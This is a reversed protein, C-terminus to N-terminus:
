ERDFGDDRSHNNRATKVTEPKKDPEKPVSDKSEAQKKEGVEKQQAIEEIKADYFYNNDILSIENDAVPKTLVLSYEAEEKSDVFNIEQAEGLMKLYEMVSFGPAPRMEPAAYIDDYYYEDRAMDELELRVTRDLLNVFAVKITVSDNTIDKTFFCNAPDYLKVEQGIKDVAMVGVYCKDIDRFHQRHYSNLTMQVFAADTKELDVDIYEAANCHRIDGSFIINSEYYDSNWGIEVEVGDKTTASGHLDLDVDSKDDWYVFCRIRKADAPINQIVNAPLYGQSMNKESPDAAFKNLDYGDNDIYVSKGRLGTDIQKLRELLVAKFIRDHVPREEVVHEKRTQEQMNLKDSAAFLKEMRNVLYKGVKENYKEYRQALSLARSNKEFEKRKKDMQLNFGVPERYKRHATNIMTILTQVSVEKSHEVLAKTIAEESYGNRLALSTMRILMGPRKAVFEIADPERAEIKQRALAEWSRNTGIARVAKAWKDDKAYRCFDIRKFIEKTFHEKARSVKLNEAFAHYGYKEYTEVFMKKEKTSLHYKNAKLYEHINKTVDGPHQCINSLAATAQQRTITGDAGSKAISMFIDKLNEKFPIDRKKDFAIKNSAVCQRIIEGELDTMRERKGLIREFPVEFKDNEAVLELAQADLLRTDEETKETDTVLGAEAPLWGQPADVGALAEAAYTFYHILQHLRFQAEDMEMVQTPFDPYMPKADVTSMMGKVKEYFTDVSPSSALKIVDTPKLTWGLTKLNENLTMAKVLGENTLVANGPEYSVMRMADLLLKDYNFKKVDPM